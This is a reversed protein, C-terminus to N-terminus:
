PREFVAKAGDAIVTITGTPLNAADIEVVQEFPVLAETCMLDAPRETVLTIHLVRGEIAHTVRAVTTCGDPLDGFLVITLSAADPKSRIEVRSVRAEGSIVRGPEPRTPAVNDASLRFTTTMDNVTLFYDGAQLGAVQLAITEEFPVLSQACVKDTARVTSITVRFANGERTQVIGGITTCSDPLWGRVLARIQVPFSELVLIEISDVAAQGSLDQQPTTTYTPLGQASPTQTPGNQTPPLVTPGVASCATVAILWAVLLSIVSTKKLPNM